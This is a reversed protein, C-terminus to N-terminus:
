IKVLESTITHSSIDHRILLNIKATEERHGKKDITIEDRYKELLARM